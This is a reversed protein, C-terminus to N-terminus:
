AQFAYFGVNVVAGTRKGDCAPASKRPTTITATGSDFRIDDGRPFRRAIQNALTAALADEGAKVVVKIEIRGNIQTLGTAGLTAQKQNEFVVQARLHSAHPPVFPEGEWGLPLALARAALQVKDKLTDYLNMTKRRQRPSRSPKGRIQAFSTDTLGFMQGHIAHVVEDVVALGDMEREEQGTGGYIVVIAAFQGYVDLDFSDTSATNQASLITVLVTAPGLSERLVEAADAGGSIAEVTVDPLLLSLERIAADRIEVLSPM